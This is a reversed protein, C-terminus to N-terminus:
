AAPRGRVADLFLEAYQAATLTVPNGGASPDRVAMEGIRAHEADPVGIESLTHPIGLTRRLDLLWKLVGDFSADQLRLCRALHEM